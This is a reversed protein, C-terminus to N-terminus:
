ADLAYSLKSFIDNGYISLSNVKSGNVHLEFHLHPGTSWGTSGVFGIVQGASVTQGVSVAITSMHGYLTEYGSGHDIQVCNGYGYYGGAITVTGSTAALIPSGYGAGIDTGGHDTSGVGGPSERSGMLSTILFANSSNADIPWVWPSGNPATTGYNAAVNIGDASATAATTGNSTLSASGLEKELAAALALDSKLKDEKEKRLATVETKAAEVETRKAALEAKYATVEAQIDQQEKVADRDAQMIDKTIDYYSFFDAPSEASFLLDMVSDNGYMYAVRARQELFSQQEAEKAKAADLKTQAEAQQQTLTAVQSNLTNLRIDYDAIQTKLAEIATKQAALQAATDEAMVPAGCLLLVLVLPLVARVFYPSQRNM